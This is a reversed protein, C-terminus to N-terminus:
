CIPKKGLAPWRASSRRLKGAITIALIIAAVQFAVRQAQSAWLKAKCAVNASGSTFGSKCVPGWTGAHFVELRGAGDISPSGDFSLLRAAGEQFGDGASGCFVISDHAHSQCTADPVSFTCEQIDLEGGECTLSSM